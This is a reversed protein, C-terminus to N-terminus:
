REIEIRRREPARRPLTITLFGEEIRAVVGNRDFPISIRLSREFPGFAIEMQHLRQLDADVPPRRVGSVRLVDGDVTVKLDDSRVGAVELRVVVAKETEFVDTAPLWGDGRFRDALGGFLEAFPDGRRREDM